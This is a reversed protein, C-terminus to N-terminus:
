MVALITSQWHTMVSLLSECFVLASQYNGRCVRRFCYCTKFFLSNVNGPVSIPITIPRLIPPNVSKRRVKADEMAAAEIAIDTEDDLFGPDDGSIETEEAPEDFLDEGEAKTLVLCFALLLLMDSFHMEKQPLFPLGLSKVFAILSKIKITLKKLNHRCIAKWKRRRPHEM